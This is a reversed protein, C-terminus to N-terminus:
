DFGGYAPLNSVRRMFLIGTVLPSYVRSAAKGFLRRCCEDVADDDNEVASGSASM